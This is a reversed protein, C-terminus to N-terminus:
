WARDGSLAPSIDSTYNGLTKAAPKLPTARQEVIVDVGLERDVAGCGHRGRADRCDLSADSLDCEGVMDIVLRVIKPESVVTDVVVESRELIYAFIEPIPQGNQRAGFDIKVCIGVIGHLSEDIRIQLSIVERDTRHM